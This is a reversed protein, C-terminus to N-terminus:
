DDLVGIRKLMENRKLKTLSSVEHTQDFLSMGRTPVIVSDESFIQEIISIYAKGGLAIIFDFGQLNSKELVQKRLTEM